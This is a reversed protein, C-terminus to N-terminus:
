ANNRYRSPNMGMNKKFVTSFYSSSPIGVREAIEQVTMDTSNLLEAARETRKRALYENFSVGIVKRFLRGFYAVNLCASDAADQISLRENALHVDLFLLVERIRSDYMGGTQNIHSEQRHVIIDDIIEGLVAPMENSSLKFVHETFRSLREIRWDFM